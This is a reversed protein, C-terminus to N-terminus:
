QKCFCLLHCLSLRKIMWKHCKSQYHDSVYTVLTAVPVYKINVQSM